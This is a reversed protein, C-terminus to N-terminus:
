QKYCQRFDSPSMHMKKKFIMSFYNSSSFGCENSIVNISKNTLTLLRKAHNLRLRLLYDIPSANTVKKFDNILKPKSTFYMNSLDELTIQNAFNSDLYKVINMVASYSDSIKIIERETKFESSMNMSYILYSFLANLKEAYFKDKKDIKSMEELIDSLLIHKETCPKTIKLALKELINEQFKNLYKTDFNINYREYSGGETKHLVHPPIVIFCPATISYPVNTLFFTREGRTLYYLEYNSHSHLDNM